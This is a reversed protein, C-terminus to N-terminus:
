IIKKIYNTVLYTNIVKLAINLLYFRLYMKLKHITIMVRVIIIHM